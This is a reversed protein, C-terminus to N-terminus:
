IECIKKVAKGHVHFSDIEKLVIDEYMPNISKLVPFHFDHVFKKILRNGQYTCVIIDGNKIKAETDFIITDGSNIKPQMSDGSVVISFPKKVGHIASSAITVEELSDDAYNDTGAFGNYSYSPINVMEDDIFEFNSEIKQNRHMFKQNLNGQNM